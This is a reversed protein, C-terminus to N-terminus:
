SSAFIERQGGFFVGPQHGAQQLNLRLHDLVAAKARLHPKAGGFLGAGHASVPRTM